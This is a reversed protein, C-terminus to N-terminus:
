KSTRKILMITTIKRKRQQETLSKKDQGVLKAKKKQNEEGDWWPLCSVLRDQREKSSTPDLGHCSDLQNQSSSTHFFSPM